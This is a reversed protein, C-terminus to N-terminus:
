VFGETVLVIALEPAEFELDASWPILV